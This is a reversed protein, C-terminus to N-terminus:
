DRGTNSWRSGETTSDTVVGEADPNRCTDAGSVLGVGVVGWSSGKLTRGGPCFM